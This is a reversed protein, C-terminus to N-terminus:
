SGPQLRATLRVPNVHCEDRTVRINSRTWTAYGPKSVAIQYLGAREGATALPLGDLDPRSDPFTVSDAFSGDRVVLKAGSAVGANTLSDKVDVLLGARLELTCITSTSGPATGSCGFSGLLISCLTASVIRKMFDESQIGLCVFGLRTGSRHLTRHPENHSHPKWRM